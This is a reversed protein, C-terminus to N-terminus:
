SALGALLGLAVVPLPLSAGLSLCYEKDGLEPSQKRRCAVGAGQFLGQIRLKELQATVRGKTPEPWMKFYFAQM